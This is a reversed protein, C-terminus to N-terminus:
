CDAEYVLTGNLFTKLVKTKMVTEASVELVPTDIVVLDALKGEEISGLKEEDFTLYAANMTWMILAQKANICYQEGYVNGDLCVRNMAKGMGIFPNCDVVPCDSGGGCIIHEDFYLGSPQNLEKDEEYMIAEEGMTGLITPQVTVSVNMKQMRPIMDERPYLAHIIYNRNKRNDKEKAGEEYANLVMDMAADGIAHIGVQWHYRAAYRCVQSLEKETITTMGRTEPHFRYPRRMYATASAPIGDLLIKIANMKLMDDGFGTVATMEKIRNLHYPIDGIAKDLFFTLNSRYTLKGAKYAEKYARMADFELNGDIVNTIGVSNLHAGIEQIAEIYAEETIAPAAKDVPEMAAREYLWGDLRGTEDHGLRGGLPEESNETIGALELAKSNVVYIHGCLRRAVIPHETSIEDLFKRDPKLGDTWSLENWASGTIWTGAPEKQVREKLREFMEQRTTCDALPVNRLNLGAKLAHMHSDTLGPIVTKGQLDIIKTEEGALSDEMGEGVGIIRGDKIAIYGNEIVTFDYNGQRIEEITVDVTYIRANRLITDAYPYWKKKM